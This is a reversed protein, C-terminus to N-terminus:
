DILDLKGPPSCFAGEACGELVSVRGRTFLECASVEGGGGSWTRFLCFHAEEVAM